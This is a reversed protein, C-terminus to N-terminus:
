EDLCNRKDEQQMTTLSRFWKINKDSNGTIEIKQVQPLFRTSEVKIDIINVRLVNHMVKPRQIFYSNLAAVRDVVM